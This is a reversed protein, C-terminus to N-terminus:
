RRRLRYLVHRRLPHGEPINPHDFDEAPDYTMDLKEMVRRSAQNGVTTWALIEELGLPQFGFRVSARAAETAYGRGWYRAALRWGVEVCPAFPADFTARALGVMGILVAEEPLEVAWMGFGYAQHHARIRRIMEFSEARSLTLPFHLMVDPDANMKAFADIDDDRFARLLLRQTRIEPQM